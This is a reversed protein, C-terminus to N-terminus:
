KCDKCDQVTKNFGFTEQERSPNFGNNSRTLTRKASEMEVSPLNTCLSQRLYNLPISIAHLAVIRGDTNSVDKYFVHIPSDNFTDFRIFQYMRTYQIKRSERYGDAKYSYPTSDVSPRVDLPWKQRRWDGLHFKIEVHKFSGHRYTYKQKGDFDPEFVVRDNPFIRMDKDIRRIVPCLRQYEESPPGGDEMIHDVYYYIETQPLIYHLFYNDVIKKMYRNVKASELVDKIPLYDFIRRAGVFDILQSLHVPPKPAEALPNKEHEIRLPDDYEPISSLQDRASTIQEENEDMSSNSASGPRHQPITSQGISPSVLSCFNPQSRDNMPM